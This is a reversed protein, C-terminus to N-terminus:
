RCQVRHQPLIFKDLAHASIIGVDVLRQEVAGIHKGDLLVAALFTRRAVGIEAMRDLNRANQGVEMEIGLRDDGRQEVVREFIRQRRGLLDFAQEATVDAPEDVADGLEALDLRLGFVFAGGFVEAFEQERHGVIDAHQQDLKGVPQVIHPRQM